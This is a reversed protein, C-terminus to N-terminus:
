SQFEWGRSARMSSTTGGGGGGGGGGGCSLMVKSTVEVITM